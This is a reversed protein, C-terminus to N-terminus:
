RGDAPVGTRLHPLEDVAALVLMTDGDRFEYDPTPATNVREVGDMSIQKVLLVSAGFRRRINLEGITQGVFASPVPIEALVTDGGTPLPEVAAETAAAAVMTGAMDRKFIENNYREIVDQPWIVGVLRGDELVPVEGRYVGLLRMVDALSGDPAVTPFKGEVMVDEAIILEALAAPDSMIPRIEDATIVGELQGAEDIVFLTSGPHDIFKTIVAGLGDGPPLTVFRPRMVDSVPVNQLVNVARGRHIDVGRRLLKLTYISARQLRTSLLTAIICSIMLPLIIAYDGTMEFIILIATIPAHTASAVLAGMGVLAYAGAGATSTPWFNHVVTGVAGGLMAGIFLSPAFIGGSGGSGITISVALIKLVVLLALFYWVMNGRVAETIAEYGVGFIHPAFIGIAGILAGGIAAKLPPSLKLRDFADEASYLSRIFSLAALGALVGLGAYAFLESAHVLSYEPVEFAPFDGLFYHSVVTASVSSIVIPSFQAVGFDGLIVEVAFLAGAVPANFTAAIGAAAGCGVLTRLRRQDVKLWQGLTSGLASGIQVIPGERGVSGGSGISVGSAFMKAIVVRPRIRGGRLAVAEMVEPVGHGKAERAFRYTILGVLLGGAAPAVIKWWFPLGALYDLTYTGRRWAVSQVLQILLRFGIAAFGGLVGLAVALLIMYLQEARRFGDRARRLATAARDLM